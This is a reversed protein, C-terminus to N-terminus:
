ARRIKNIIETSSVMKLFDPVVRKVTKLEIGLTESLKRKEEIASDDDNLIYFDPKLKKLLSVFHVKGSSLEEDALLVYDVDKMSALLFLRNQENNVPRESGKLEKIIRDTGLGVVLLDAFEKCQGFFVAHGSHLIDFCGSCFAIKKDKNEIRIRELDQYSIINKLIVM